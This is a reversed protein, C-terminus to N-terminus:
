ILSDFWVKCRPCQRTYPLLSPSGSANTNASPRRRTPTQCIRCRRVPAKKENGNARFYVDVGPTATAIERTYDCAWGSCIWWGNGIHNMKLGCRLCQVPLEEYNKLSGGKLDRVNPM